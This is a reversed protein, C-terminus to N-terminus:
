GGFAALAAAASPLDAAVWCAGARELDGAPTWGTAVALCRLAHARACAVDEVSDGVILVEGPAFRQGTAREARALAVPPLEHREVGDDGFAGFRFFRNLDFHALKIRAGRQWNGTLLGLEVGPAAALRELLEGVGPLVTMGGRDLGAELRALYGDRVRPLERRVAERDLGAGTMLDLVIRPDTKGSFSYGELDGTRGFVERLADAFLPRVQPGCHLLTGDVDFLILRMAVMM